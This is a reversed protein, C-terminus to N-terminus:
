PTRLAEVQHRILEYTQSSGLKDCLPRVDSELNLDHITILYAIDPLDKGARRAPSSSLSFIKMAILDKLAPVKVAFGHLTIPVANLLLAQM